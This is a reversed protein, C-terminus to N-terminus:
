YLNIKSESLIQKCVYKEQENMFYVDISPFKYYIEIGFMKFESLYSWVNM